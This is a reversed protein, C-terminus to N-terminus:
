RTKRPAVLRRLQGTLRHRFQAPRWLTGIPHWGVHPVMRGHNDCIPCAFGIRWLTRCEGCRWLDGLIGSATIQPLDRHIRLAKWTWSRM